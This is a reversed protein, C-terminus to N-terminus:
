WVTREINQSCLLWKNQRTDNKMVNPLCLFDRPHTLSCLLPSFKWWSQVTYQFNFTWINNYILIFMFIWRWKIIVLMTIRPYAFTILHCYVAIVLHYLPDQPWMGFNQLAWNRWYCIKNNYQIHWNHWRVWGVAM